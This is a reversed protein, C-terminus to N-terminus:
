WELKAVATEIYKTFFDSFNPFFLDYSKTILWIVWFAGLQLVMWSKKEM